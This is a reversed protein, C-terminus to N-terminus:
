RGEIRYVTFAAENYETYITDISIPAVNYGRNQYYGSLWTLDKDCAAIFYAKQTYLASQIYKLGM